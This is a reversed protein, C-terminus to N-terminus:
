SGESRLHRAVMEVLEVPRWTLGRAGAGAAEARRVAARQADLAGCYVLTPVDPYAAHVAELLHLGEPRGPVAPDPREWDTIVLGVGGRELARLASVTSTATEVEIQMAHLTAIERVNNDPRDDVWLVRGPAPMNMLSEGVASAQRREPAPEGRSAQAAELRQVFRNVVQESDGGGDRSAVVHPASPSSVAGGVPGDPAGPPSGGPPPPARDVLRRVVARVGRAVSTWAADRDPWATVPKMGEPLGQLRAFPADEWIVDRVIVPIAVTEGADHRELARTMEKGWCYDSDIFDASVLFLVLDARELADSIEGAWDEGAVIHRDHWSRLVGRRELIKLHAELEERLPEDEHAYSYFLDVAADTM